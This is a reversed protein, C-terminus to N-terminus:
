QYYWGNPLTIKLAKDKLPERIEETITTEEIKYTVSIPKTVDLLNSSPYGKDDKLYVNLLWIISQGPKLSPLRKKEIENKKLKEEFSASSGFVEKLEDHSRFKVKSEKLSDINSHNVSDYKFLPANAKEYKYSIDIEDLRNETSNEILLFLFGVNKTIKPDCRDKGSDTETHWRRAGDPLFWPFLTKVFCWSNTLDSSSITWTLDLENYDEVLYKWNSDNVVLADKYQWKNEWFNQIKPDIQSTNQNSLLKMILPVEHSGFLRM